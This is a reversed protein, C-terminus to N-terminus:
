DQRLAAAPSIALARRAPGIAAAVAAAALTLAAAVLILPDRSSAQYVVAALVRSASWALALGACSGAAVIWAMRRMVCRLVQRPAAGVAVRIGIERVRRSVAYAAVGYIGTIALVLALIGFASLAAVAARSPFFASGVSESMSGVGYLPLHPDLGAVARRMEQALVPEPLASRALVVTTGNYSQMAPTFVASDQNETITNYKGNEVVGVIEILPGRGQRFHRGIADESGTLLRALYRNVIAVPPAQADDHWTFERGFLLRTGAARFYGPSARYYYSHISNAPRFDTTGERFLSTSSEDAALPISNAFAAAAVGPIAAVAEVARRQLAAGDARKYGALGLDFKVVAVGRPQVGLPTSFARTLGRVSVFCGAVLACCVAVQIGVLLDRLPLRRPGRSGAPVGKLMSNPDSRWALRAPPLGALIGAALSAAASCAFVRWDPHIDLRAPLDVMPQLRSLTRALVAALAIGAAGGLASLLLSEALMQRLIRGRGAGISLRIAMERSRDAARAALLSALNACVTLLVLVALAMVGGAFAEAPGRLMDGVMGPRSLKIRDPWDTEPHEGALALSISSLDAAAAERSMGPRLRGIVWVNHTNRVDLWSWGEIQPQMTMPVWIEPWYFLETGHFEPPAVGLVTYSFGNVRILRGAIQPDGGFRTQWCGYSLVAYSSAGPHLDDQPGFLRGLAPRVGLMEFYNGTALYGWLREAGGGGRELSMVVIRFAALASLTRNRDRFDRYAPLSFSVSNGGSELSYVEAPRAVPLPKLVLANVLSFVTSNAGIGLALSLVAAATFGPSRRLTRLVYRVDRRLEEIWRLGHAQRCDERYAEAAGFEIRAQRMADARSLGRRVLDGARLELHSRLEDELDREWQRRRLLARFM